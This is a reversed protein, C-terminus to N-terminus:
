SIAELEAKNASLVSRWADVEVKLNAIQQKLSDRESVLRHYRGRFEAPMARLALTLRIEKGPLRKDERECEEFLGAEYDRIFDGYESELPRLERNISGLTRSLSDLDKALGRVKDKGEIPDNM